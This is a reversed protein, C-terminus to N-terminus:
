RSLLPALNFRPSSSTGWVLVKIYMKIVWHGQKFAPEPETARHYSRLNQM